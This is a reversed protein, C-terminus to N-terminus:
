RAWFPIHADYDIVSPMTTTGEHHACRYWDRWEKEANLRVGEAKTPQNDLELIQSKKLMARAREPGFYVV